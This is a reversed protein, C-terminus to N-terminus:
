KSFQFLEYFVLMIFFILSTFETRTLNENKHITEIKSKESILTRKKEIM